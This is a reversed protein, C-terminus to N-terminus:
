GCNLIIRVISAVKVMNIAPALAIASHSIFFIIARDVRLCNPTIINVKPTPRGVKANKWKIVWAKNLARKNIQAPVIM